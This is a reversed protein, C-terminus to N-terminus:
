SLPLQVQDSGRSWRQCLCSLSPMSVGSILFFTVWDGIFETKVQDAYYGAVYGDCSFRTEPPSFFIPYDEGPVGPISAALFSFINWYVQEQCLNSKTMLILSYGARQSSRVDRTWIHLQWLINKSWKGSKVGDFTSDSFINNNQPLPFINIINDGLLQKM